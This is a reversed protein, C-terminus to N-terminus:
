VLSGETAGSERLVAILADGSLVGAIFLRDAVVDIAARQTALLTRTADRLRDLEARVVQWLEARMAESGHENYEYSSIGGEFQNPSITGFEAVLGSEVARLVTLTARTIDDASGFSVADPGEVIEEALVGALSFQAQARWHRQYLDQEESFETRLV